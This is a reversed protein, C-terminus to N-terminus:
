PFSSQLPVATVRRGMVYNFTSKLMITIVAGDLKWVQLLLGGVQIEGDKGRGKVFSKGSLFEAFAALIGVADLSDLRCMEWGLQLSGSWLPSPLDSLAM